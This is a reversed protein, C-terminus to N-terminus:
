FGAPGEVNGDVWSSEQCGNEEPLWERNTLSGWTTIHNRTLTNGFNLPPAPKSMIDHNWKNFMVVLIWQIFLQQFSDCINHSILRLGLVQIWCNVVLILFSVTKIWSTEPTCFPHSISGSSSSACRNSSPWWSISLWSSSSALCSCSSSFRIALCLLSSCSTLQSHVFIDKFQCM